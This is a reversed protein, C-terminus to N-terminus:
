PAKGPWILPEDLIPFESADKLAATLSSVVGEPGEEEDCCFHIPDSTMGWPQGADDYFVEHLGFGVNKQYRIIRYNWASM